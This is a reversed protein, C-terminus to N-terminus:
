KGLSRALQWGRRWSRFRDPFAVQAVLDLSRPGFVFTCVARVQDWAGFLFTGPGLVQCSGQHEKKRPRRSMSISKLPASISSFHVLDIWILKWFLKPLQVYRQIRPVPVVVLMSVGTLALFM